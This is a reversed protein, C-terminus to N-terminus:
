CSAYRDNLFSDFVKSLLYISHFPICTLVLLGYSLALKNLHRLEKKFNPTFAIICRPDVYFVLMDIWPAGGIWFIEKIM